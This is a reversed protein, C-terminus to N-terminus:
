CIFVCLRRATATSRRHIDSKAKNEEGVAAELLRDEDSITQKSGRGKPPDHVSDVGPEYPFCFVNAFHVIPEPQTRSTTHGEQM